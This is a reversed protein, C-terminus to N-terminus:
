WGLVGRALRARAGCAGEELKMHPVRAQSQFRQKSLAPPANVGGGRGGGASDAVLQTRWHCGVYMDNLPQKKSKVEPYKPQDPSPSMVARSLRQESSAAAYPQM